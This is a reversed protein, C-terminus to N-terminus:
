KHLYDGINRMYTLEEEGMPSQDLVNLNERMQLLNKAGMMCVDVHPNSLVFRYCDSAAPPIQGEPMNKEKLLRSWRTATFSVVGPKNKGDLYPFTENEAGRNAANYRIHFIDFIGERELEPFLKREHSTLGIFRVDAYEIGLSKLGKLYFYKTLYAEHAYSLIAIVLNDREGRRIINKIAKKMEVSRGKIFTGWTFYNCGKEFAEEFALASAGFSSSIGLRGVILGSRGLIRKESLTM